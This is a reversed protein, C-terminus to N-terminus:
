QEQITQTVNEKKAFLVGTFVMPFWSMQTYELCEITLGSVLFMGWLMMVIYFLKRDNEESLKQLIHKLYYVFLFCGVYGTAYIQKIYQSHARDGVANHLADTGLDIGLIKTFLPQESFYQLIGWWIAQRSHMIREIWSHAWDASLEVKQGYDAFPFIEIIIFFCVLAITIGISINRVSKAKFVLPRSKRLEIERLLIFGYVVLIAVQQMRAGSYLVMYGCVPLITFWKWIRCESFAYIFIMAIIIAIALDTKYYYVGGVNLLTEEPGTVFFKFGFQYFRYFFNIYVVLYGAGALWKGHQMIEGAYVRGLFYLLFCSEVKFFIGYASPYRLFAGAYVLMLAMVIYDAPCLFEKLNKYIKDKWIKGGLLVIGWIVMGYDLIQYQYFMDVIQKFFLFISM